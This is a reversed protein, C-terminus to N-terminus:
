NKNPDWGLSILVKRVIEHASELNKVAEFPMEQDRMQDDLINKVNILQQIGDKKPESTGYVEEISEHILNRLGQKTVKTEAVFSGYKYGAPVPRSDDAAINKRAQLEGEYDKQLINVLANINRDSVAKELQQKLEPDTDYSLLVQNLTGWVKNPNTQALKLLKGKGQPWKNVDIITMGSDADKFIQNYLDEEEKLVPEAKMERMKYKCKVM